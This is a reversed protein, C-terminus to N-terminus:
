NIKQIVILTDYWNIISRILDEGQYYRNKGKPQGDAYTTSWSNPDHVEFFTKQDITVFGKVIFYHGSSFDYFRQIRKEVDSVKPIAGMSNNVIVIHGARLLSMLDEQSELTYEFFKV